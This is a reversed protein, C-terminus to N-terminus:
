SQNNIYNKVVDLTAGGTSSAFYAKTWLVGKWFYPHVVGFEKAFLRSSVGKLSNVLKSVAHKPPINVLLHVHDEEGNMEILETEFDLCVKKMVSRLFDIHKKEFVCRRHKTVFVLHVNLNFICHRGTRHEQLKRM